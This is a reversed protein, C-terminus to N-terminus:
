KHGGRIKFIAETIVQNYMQPTTPLRLSELDAIAAKRGDEWGELYSEQKMLRVTKEM